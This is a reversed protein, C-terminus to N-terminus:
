PTKGATQKLEWERLAWHATFIASTGEDKQDIERLIPVVRDPMLDVLYAGASARVSDKAHDLLPALAARGSPGEDLMSSIANMRSVLENCGDPDGLEHLADKLQVALAFASVLSAVRDEVPTSNQSDLLLSIAQLGDARLKDLENVIEFGRLLAEAHATRDQAAFVALDSDLWGDLKAELRAITEDFEM